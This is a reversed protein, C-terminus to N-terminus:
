IKTVIRGQALPDRLTPHLIWPESGSNILSWDKIWTRDHQQGIGITWCWIFIKTWLLAAQLDQDGCFQRAWGNNHSDWRRERWVLRRTSHDHCCIRLLSHEPISVCLSKCWQYHSMQLYAQDRVWCRWPSVHLLAVFREVGDVVTNARSRTVNAWLTDLHKIGAWWTVVFVPNLVM